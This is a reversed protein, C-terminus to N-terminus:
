RRNVLIDPEGHHYVKKVGSSLRLCLGGNQDLGAFSGEVRRGQHRLGIRDGIRFHSRRQWQELIETKNGGALGSVRSFFVHSLTRVLAPIRVEQGTLMAISTSKPRIDGPFDDPLHNINIGVGCICVSEDGQILNEVLIGAIKRNSVLVDNPWKLRCKSPIM